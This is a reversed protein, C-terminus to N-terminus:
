KFGSDGHSQLPQRRSEGRRLLFLPLIHRAIMNEKEVFFEILNFRSDNRNVHGTDLSCEFLLRKL